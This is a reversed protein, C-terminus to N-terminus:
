NNFLWRGDSGTTLHLAHGCCMCREDVAPHPRCPMHMGHSTGKGGTLTNAAQRPLPIQASSRMLCFFCWNDLNPSCMAHRRPPSGVCSVAACSVKSMGLAASAAARLARSRPPWNAACRCAPGPPPLSQLRWMDRVPTCPMGSGPSRVEENAHGKWGESDQSCRIKCLLLLPLLM